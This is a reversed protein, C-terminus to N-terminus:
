RRRVPRVAGLTSRPGCNRPDEEPTPRRTGTLTVPTATFRPAIPSSHSARRTRHTTRNSWPHITRLRRRAAGPLSRPGPPLPPPGRGPPGHGRLSKALNLHLSPLMGAISAADSAEGRRTGPPEVRPDTRAQIPARGRLPRCVAAELNTSHIAWAHQFLQGATDPEGRGEADMGQVCLATVPNDPHMPDVPM